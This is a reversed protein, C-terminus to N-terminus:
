FAGFFVEFHKKAGVKEPASKQVIGEFRFDAYYKQNKVGTNVSKSLFFNATIHVKQVTKVCFYSFAICLSIILFFKNLVKTEPDWERDL